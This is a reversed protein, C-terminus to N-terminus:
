RHLFDVVMSVKLLNFDVIGTLSVGTGLTYLFWGIIMGSLFSDKELFGASDGLTFFNSEVGFWM